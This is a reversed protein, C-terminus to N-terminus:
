HLITKANSGHGTTGSDDTYRSYPIYGSRAITENCVDVEVRVASASPDLVFARM